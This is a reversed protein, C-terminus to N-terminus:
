ITAPHVFNLKEDSIKLADLFQYDVESAPKFLLGLTADPEPTNVHEISEITLCLQTGDHRSLVTQMGNRITGEVVNGAFVVFRRGPIVLSFKCNFIAAPEM